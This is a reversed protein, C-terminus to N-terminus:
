VEFIYFILSVKKDDVVVSLQCARPNFVHLPSPFQPLIEGPAAAIIIARFSLLIKKILGFHFCVIYVILSLIWFVYRRRTQSVGFNGAQLVGFACQYGMKLLCRLTLKLIIGRKFAVFNRVNELIIFPPRYFDCYSLFTVILSNQVLYM